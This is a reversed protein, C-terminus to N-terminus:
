RSMVRNVHLKKSLTMWSRSYWWSGQCHCDELNRQMWCSCISKIIKIYFIGWKEKSLMMTFGILLTFAGTFLDNFLYITRIGVLFFVWGILGKNIKKPASMPCVKWNGVDYFRFICNNDIYEVETEYEWGNILWHVYTCLGLQLYLHQLIYSATLFLTKSKGNWQKM